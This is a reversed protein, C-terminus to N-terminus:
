AARYKQDAQAGYINLSKFGKWIHGLDYKNKQNAIEQRKTETLQDISETMNKDNLYRLRLQSLLYLDLHALNGSATVAELSGLHGSRKKGYANQVQFIIDKYGNGKLVRKMISRGLRGNGDLYPHIREYTYYAWSSGEVARRLKDKPPHEEVLLNDLDECYLRMSQSVDLGDVFYNDPYSNISVNTNRYVGPQLPTLGKKEYDHVGSMLARHIAPIMEASRLGPTHIWSKIIAQTAYENAIESRSHHNIEVRDESM